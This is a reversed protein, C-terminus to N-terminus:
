NYPGGPSEAIVIRGGAESIIRAAAEVMAPHTTICKDPSAPILLNPKIVVKKGAFFSRDAGLSEFQARIVSEVETINYGACKNIVVDTNNPKM